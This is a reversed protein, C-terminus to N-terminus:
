VHRKRLLDSFLIVRIQYPQLKDIFMALKKMEAFAASARLARHHFVAGIIPIERHMGLLIRNIMIRANLPLPMGKETYDNLSIQAPLDLYSKGPLVTKRGASFLPIRLEKMIALTTQDYGHYPPIFAPTFYEGFLKKMSAYGQLVEKKQQMASRSPGFEYKDGSPSRSPNHNKHRWGHQAIDLLAPNRRKEQKLFRVAPRSVSGPIVGYVIPIKYAKFLRFTKLFVDSTNFVDDDRIFLCQRKTM